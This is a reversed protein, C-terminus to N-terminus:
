DLSKCPLPLSRNEFALHALTLLSTCTLDLRLPILFKKSISTLTIHIHSYPIETTHIEVFQVWGVELHFLIIFRCLAFWSSLSNLAFSSSIVTQFLQMGSLSLCLCLVILLGGVTTSYARRLKNSGETDDNNLLLFEALLLMAGNFLTTLRHDLTVIDEDKIQWCDCLDVLWCM